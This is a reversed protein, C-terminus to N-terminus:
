ISTNFQLDVSQLMYKWQQNHERMKTVMIKTYYYEDQLNQTKIYRITQQLINTTSFILFCLRGQIEFDFLYIEFNFLLKFDM